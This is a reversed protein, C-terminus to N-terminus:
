FSKLAAVVIVIIEWRRLETAINSEFFSELKAETYLEETHHITSSETSWIPMKYTNYYKQHLIHHLFPCYVGYRHIADM